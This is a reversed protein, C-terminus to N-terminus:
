LAQRVLLLDATRARSRGGTKESVELRKSGAEFDIQSTIQSTVRSEGFAAWASTLPRPSGALAMHSYRGAATSSNLSVIRGRGIIKVAIHRQVRGDNPQVTLESTRIM